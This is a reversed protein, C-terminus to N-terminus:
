PAGELWCAAQHGAGVDRFPPYADCRDFRHPCRPGFRCGSPWADPTPVAGRIPSLRQVPGDLRPVSALLAQTYPHTPDTFLRATPAQEIIRGAYMVAVRDTRGAVIGLDHTILLVAMGHSARLRDLVELIQAQVTVDLATTPEDAILVKPDCALAAAILIRQRMGGSLEHPYQRFRAPPDAIGVEELLALARHRAADQPMREHALIAETIQSGVTYVPDLSTMPDQFIMAIGAGRVTRLENPAMATLDRGEYRITSAPGVTAGGPLLRLVALATLSKGCGSEGVLALAEGAALELSVGDVPTTIGTPGPFTVSLDHISLLGTM